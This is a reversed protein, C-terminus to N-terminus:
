SELQLTLTVIGGGGTVSRDTVCTVLTVLGADSADCSPVRTLRARESGGVACAYTRVFCHRALRTPFAVSLVLLVFQSPPVSIAYTGRSTYCPRSCESHFFVTIFKSLLHIIIHVIFSVSCSHCATESGVACSEVRDGPSM